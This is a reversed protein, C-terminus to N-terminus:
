VRAGHPLWPTRLSFVMRDFNEQWSSLANRECKLALRFAEAKNGLIVYHSIYEDWSPNSGKELYALEIRHWRVGPELDGNTQRLLQVNRYAKSTSMVEVVDKALQDPLFLPQRGAELGFLEIM